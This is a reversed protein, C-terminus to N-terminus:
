QGSPAGELYWQYSFAYGSAALRPLSFGHDHRKGRQPSARESSDLTFELQDHHPEGYRRTVTLGLGGTGSQLTVTGITIVGSVIRVSEAWGLGPEPQRHRHASAPAHSLRDLNRTVVAGNYTATRTCRTSPSRLPYTTYPDLPVKRSWGRVVTM